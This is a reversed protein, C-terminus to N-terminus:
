HFIHFGHTKLVDSAVFHKVLPPHKGRHFSNARDLVKRDSISIREHERLHELWSEVMFCEVFRNPYEIDNFLNWFFAGERLHIFRVDRIADIFEALEDRDIKYEVTIMVPGQEHEVHPATPAPMGAPTHDLGRVKELSFFPTLGISLLLGLGAFVLTDTISFHTAIIGWLTSGVAMGGFFAILYIGLARARVWFAVAIQAGTNLTVLTTIWAIGGFLMGVCIFYFNGSLALLFTTASFMLTGMNTLQNPNFRRRLRPLLFAGAVTGLGLLGLLAGYSDASRGLEIRVILPM